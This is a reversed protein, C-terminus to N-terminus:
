LHGDAQLTAVRRALALLAPAGGAFTQPLDLPARARRHALDLLRQGMADTHGARTHLIGLARLDRDVSTRPPPAPARGPGFRRGLAWAVGAYILLLHGMLLDLAQQSGRAAAADATEQLGLHWEDFLMAEDADLEALVAELAAPNGADPRAFWGNQLLSLDDIIAVRGQQNKRIRAGVGGDESRLVWAEDPDPRVRLRARRVRIPGEDEGDVRVLLMEQRLTQALPTDVDPLEPTAAEDGKTMRDIDLADLLPWGGPGPRHTGDLLLLVDGGVMLWRRVADLDQSRYPRPAPVSLILVGEADPPLDPLPRRWSRIPWGREGLYRWAARTGDARPNTSVAGSPAMEPLALALLAAGLCLALVAFWLRRTDSM